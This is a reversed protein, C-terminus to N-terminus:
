LSVATKKAMGRGFLGIENELDDRLLPNNEVAGTGPKGRGHQVLGALHEPLRFGLLGIGGHEITVPCGVGADFLHNLPTELVVKELHRFSPLFRHGFINCARSRTFHPMNNYKEM